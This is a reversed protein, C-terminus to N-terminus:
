KKRRLLFLSLSGLGALAMTGPEPVVVPSLILDDDGGNAAAAPSNPLTNWGTSDDTIDPSPAAGGVANVFALVGIDSAASNIADAALAASLTAYNGTWAVIALVANASTVGNIAATPESSGFQGDSGTLPTLSGGIEDQTFGDSTLDLPNLNGSSSLGSLGATSTADLSYCAVDFSAAETYSSTTTSAAGNVDIVVNGAALANEIYVQGQSFGSLSAGVVATITLIIKKM